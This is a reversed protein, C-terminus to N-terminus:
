PTGRIGPAAREGTVEDHARSSGNAPADTQRPTEPARLFAVFLGVLLAARGWVGVVVAQAALSQHITYPQEANILYMWRFFGIGMAADALLYAVVWGAPVRLLVFFPLLWLVFQPSHVKHFLLFGCLMAASVAIWPFTGTTAWRRMGLLCAVAFSLLVLVPSLVSVLSEFREQEVLPRLGWYWISNTSVDVARDLQFRFSALWGRFGALAFPLNVLVATGLAVALVRLAGRVDYRRVRAPLLVGDPGGTLVYLALPLAFMGPYLKVSAGIGLLVAAITSSRRLTGARPRHLAYVAAVSCAAAALDWNHFSYLVLPPGLAWILARWRSLRGLWWATLLGCPALLLASAALFGADTSVFLTGLWILVGILVPYEVVGGYLRGSDTIGGDVYPLVLEDLDRTEWLQQLDTYCAVGYSRQWLQSEPSGDEGFPLGTCRAKHLYGLLMVLGALLCLVALGWPPLDRRAPAFRRPTRTNEIREM